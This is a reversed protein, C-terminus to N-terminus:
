SSFNVDQVKLECTYVCADEAPKEYMGKITGLLTFGEKEYLARAGTNSLRVELTVRRAGRLSAERKLATLLASAVGRRRFEPAVAVNLVSADEFLIHSGIYGARVGDAYATFFAAYPNILEYELGQVSWPSSFCEKELQAVFSIDDECLLRVSLESM